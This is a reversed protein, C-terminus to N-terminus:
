LGRTASRWATLLALLAIGVFCVFSWNAISGGLFTWDV